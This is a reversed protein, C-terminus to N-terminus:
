GACLFGHLERHHATRVGILDSSHKAWMSGVESVAPTRYEQHPSYVRNRVTPYQCQLWWRPASNSTKPCIRGGLLDGRRPLDAQLAGCDVSMASEYICDFPANRFVPSTWSM